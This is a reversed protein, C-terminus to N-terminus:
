RGDLFWEQCAAVGSGLPINMGMARMGMETGALTALVELENLDGLHGIRFARGNLPGLGNGLALEIE